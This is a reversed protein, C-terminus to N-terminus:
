PASRRRRRQLLVASLALLAAGPVSSSACSCSTGDDDGPPLSGGSGPPLVGGGGGNGGGDATGGDSGGDARTQLPPTFAQAVSEWAVLKANQAGGSNTGDVALLVGSPYGGDAASGLPASSIALALSTEVADIGGDAAIQFTGRVAHPADRDLM